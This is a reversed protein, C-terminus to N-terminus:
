EEMVKIMRETADQFEQNEKRDHREAEAERWEKRERKEANSFHLVEWFMDEKSWRPHKRIQRLREAWTHPTNRLAVDTKLLPIGGSLILLGELQHQTNDGTQSQLAIEGGAVSMCGGRPHFSAATKVGPYCVCSLSYRGNDGGQAEQELPTGSDLLSRDTTSKAPADIGLADIAEADIGLLHLFARAAPFSELGAPTRIGELVEKWEGEWSSLEVGAKTVWTDKNQTCCYHRPSPSSSGPYIVVGFNCLFWRGKDVDCMENCKSYM